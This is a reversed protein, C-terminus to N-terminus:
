TTLSRVVVEQGESQCVLQKIGQDNFKMKVKEAPKGDICLRVNSIHIPAEFKVISGSKEERTPKQHKTCINVDRVIVRDGHIALVEGMKGKDDGTVVLVQDGKKIKKTKFARIEQPTPKQGYRKTQKFLKRM